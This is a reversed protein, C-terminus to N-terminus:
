FGKFTKVIEIAEQWGIADTFGYWRPPTAFVYKSNEGIKVPGVPAASVSVKGGDVLKWVEPTFVMIPIDQWLQKTTTQPNKFILLPGSYDPGESPMSEIWGEWSSNKNIIYGEWSDPFTLKFGYETNTYTKWDATQSAVVPVKDTFKFTSLIQNLIIPQNKNAYLCNNYNEAQLTNGPDLPLYFDCNVKSTEFSIEFCKKDKITVYNYLNYIHGMGASGIKYLCYDVGNLNIKEGVSTKATGTEITSIGVNPCQNPFIEYNCNIVHSNPDNDSFFNVPYKMEFGYEANTYAKWDSAQDVTPTIFKFSSKIGDLISMDYSSVSSGPSFEAYYMYNSDMYKKYNKQASGAGDNRDIVLMAENKKVVYVGINANKNDSLDFAVVPKCLNNSDIFQTACFDFVWKNQPSGSIIKSQAPYKIEFGYDNNKYTQWGAEIESVPLEKGAMSYFKNEFEFKYNKNELGSFKYVLDHGCICNALISSSSNVKLIITDGKTITNNKIEYDGGKIKASCNIATSAKVSLIGNNWKAETVYDGFGFGKNCDSSTFEMKVDQNNLNSVNKDILEIQKQSTQSFHFIKNIWGLNWSLPNWWAALTVQPVVIAVMLIIVFFSIIKEKAM